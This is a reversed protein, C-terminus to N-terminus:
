PLHLKIAPRVGYGALNVRAYHRISARTGIFVARSSDKGKDKLSGRNRLWWWSCGYRHSGEHIYDIEVNKDMVYLHCGDAKRIRAFGTGRARRFDKGLQETLREVEAISLLFVRDETEPTAGDDNICVTARILDKEPAHFAADCFEGNLWHRLDCDRWTVDVYAGHYRKCDLILESLLFLEDGSNQLVRWQIPTRDTGDAAQPYAGFRIIEGPSANRYLAFSRFDNM